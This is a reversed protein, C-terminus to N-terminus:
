SRSAESSPQDRRVGPRQLLGVLEARSRTGTKRYLNKIHDRVTHLSIGMKGAVEATGLGAALHHLLEHERPTLRYTAAILSLCAQPVMALPQLLAVVGHLARVEDDIRVLECAVASGDSLSVVTSRTPEGHASGILEEVWSVLVALLPRPPRGPELVSLEDETQRSLLADGPPNAYVIQGDPDFLLVSSSTSDLAGRFLHSLRQLRREELFHEFLHRVLEVFGPTTAADAPLGITLDFRGPSDARLTRSPGSPEGAAYHRCDAHGERKLEVTIWPARAVEALRELLQALAPDDQDPCPPELLVGSGKRM